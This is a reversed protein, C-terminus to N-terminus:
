GPCSPAGGPGAARDRGAPACGRCGVECGLDLATGSVPGGVQPEACLGQVRGCDTVRGMRRARDRDRRDRTGGTRTMTPDPLHEGILAHLSTVGALGEPLRKRALVTGAEDVLEVDHHDEAWDDGVFLVAHAEESLDSVGGLLASSVGLSRM